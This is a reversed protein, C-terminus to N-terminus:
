TRRPHSRDLAAGVLAGFAIHDAVQPVMPLERIAPIRRGVLGLDLVAIAAGAAAGGAIAGRRPLVVALVATWGVSIVAHAVLGRVLTRRGLLAGAAQAAALPDRGTAVAHATSPAGSVVGAVLASRAVDRGTRRSPERREAPESGDVPTLDIGSGTVFQGIGRDMIRDHGQVLVSEVVVALARLLPRRPALRSRFTVRSGSGDPELGVEAWGGLDGQVEAALRRPRDVQTFHVVYRVLYRAPARITASLEAGVRPRDGRLEELWPWWRGYSAVDTLAAWVREPSESSRWVRKSEIPRM